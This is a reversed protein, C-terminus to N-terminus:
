FAEGITLHYAFRSDPDPNDGGTRNLRYGVDLRVPGVITHLRIGLGVAWHLNNLDLDDVKETVDGGDLFVVGGLPMKKISTIPIRAEVSTDFLAAGGYPVTKEDEDPKPQGQDDLPPGTFSPSLKRESFGRQSISGGGFFRETAPVDGFIGGFRGHMALVVGWPLPVYGRVDPVVQIYDLQSGAYKTGEALRVEAYAGLTPEIPHDRLDLVVSQQFTAIRQDRDIGIEQQKEISLIDNPRTFSIQQVTWGIRARLKDTFLPTEFGVSALPGYTTYAEVTLYNYGAQIDGTTYTWFLDRRELKALARIRPEYEGDRNRLFAYAPRFDLTVTDLPFPWGAITYGARGRVEYASPDMGVGGGLKIERRASESVAVEVGVVARGTKDPQVRVTSFRGFGYLNRQTQTIASQSYVQGQKFTIRNSVAEALEGTVGVVKIPGFECKPGTIYALDIVATHNARDAVVTAELSAHAYGADQVVGLMLPKAEDYMEYDFPQGDKLPMQELVKAVPLDKPLGRVVIRTGARIGEEVTYIVTSDDGNREIKSRVDVDLFGKRLYEGRIRDADLDILYPDPARGRKLTRNLALGTVLRSDSFRRNGEFDIKALRETGARHVPGKACAGVLALAM